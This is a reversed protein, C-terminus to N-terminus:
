MNVSRWFPTQNLLSNANLLSPDFPWYYKKANFHSLIMQDSFKYINFNKKLRIMDYFRHGELFLERAREAFIEEILNGDGNWALLGAQTRIENLITQARSVNNTAALAEALLLKIDSYRFVIINNKFITRANATEDSYSLNAYKSCIAYETNLELDFVSNLRKDKVDNFLTKIHTPDINFIPNILMRNYPAALTYFGIGTNSSENSGNQAVEFIGEASKGKYITRYNLSDRGVFSYKGSQLVSDAALVCTAYDGKWASLHAKLAYAVGKNARVAFDTAAINEWKLLTLAKNLDTESQELVEKETAAPYNVASVPQVSERVIPVGGWIRSMYFYTFSRMFYAEGLYYNRVAENDFASADMKPLNQIVRNAQDIVQYFIEYRRLRYMPNGTDSSPVSLNLNMKIVADFNVNTASRFEDSPLDGYAYFSIGSADNFAKRLLAYMAATGANADSQTKWFNEDTASSVPEIDLFKSCSYTTCLVAALMLILIKRKM